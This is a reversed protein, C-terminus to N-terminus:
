TVLYGSVLVDTGDFVEVDRDQLELAESMESAVAPAAVPSPTGPGGGVIKPAIFAHVKQVCGDKIAEASLRGGCEWLVTMADQKQLFDMADRPRLHAIEVVEVGRERLKGVTEPRGHAADVLVVTRLERAGDWMRAGLPLDLGRTMVVRIPALLAEGYSDVEGAGQVRVTLRADDKRLTEGGVVIADVGARIEHVRARAAPGTVWKSSGGETAIKGDLTMAYKLVGFPAREEVRRVFGENLRRCSAEEVGVLVEIGADRMRAVGRGATRPDPDVMGVVVRAVGAAILAASCPPTRGTHNCPELSVYATAGRVDIGNEAAFFLAEAEAHRRGARTHFGEALVAGTPSTLVCGVLPNPRTQGASLSALAICRRIFTADSPPSPAACATLPLPKQRARHTLLTKHPPPFPSLPPRALTASKVSTRTICLPTAFAPTLTSVVM